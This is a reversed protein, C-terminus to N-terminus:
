TSGRNAEEALFERALEDYPNASPSARASKQRCCRELPDAEDVYKEVGAALFGELSQYAPKLEYKDTDAGILRYNTMAATIEIDSYAQMTALIPGRNLGTLVNMMLKRQPPKLSFNNWTAAMAELRRGIEGPASKPTAHLSSPTKEHELGTDFFVIEEHASARENQGQDRGQDKTRSGQDLSSDERVTSSDERVTAFPPIKSESPKDIKQHELWNAIQVYSQGDVKYRQICHEHELSELWSDILQPADDDYPFLLSALMRSNGRLRGSDDALTWLEIFCLRADRSVRGMSESQPFEPKITRIRGM